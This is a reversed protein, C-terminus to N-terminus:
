LCAYVITFLAAVLPGVGLVYLFFLVGAKIGARTGGKESAALYSGAVASVLGSFPLVAGMAGVKELKRYVGFVYLIGAVVGLTVLTLSMLWPSQAGLLFRWFAYFCESACGIIGGIVFSGFLRKVVGVNM